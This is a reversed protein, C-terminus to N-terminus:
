VFRSRRGQSGSGLPHAEIRGHYGLRGASRGLRWPPDQWVIGGWQDKAAYDLRLCTKGKHPTEACSEDLKIAKTNGMWGTPVFPPKAAGAEDYVILPPKAKRGLAVPKPGKVFLPVNAVAAGGHNDRIYAFLRYGGGSSPMTLTAHNANSESIADVFEPPAAEKDGGSSYTGVESRLVWRVSIPDAEPDSTKLSVHVVAGPAVSDTGDVVLGAIVPCHNAVPRGLWLEAMTDAAALRSGDSLLMGFWTATAEQKTGWLFAYSGLCQSKAALSTEYGTQYALAKATSTQEPVVGWGNKKSEWIGAPGFETIIFPKTGGAEHYRKPVSPVGAYSNIGVIDIASCLKHLNRVKNGGIEAVVTMTPHDPDLEKAMTALGNITSWIAANAGEPGEMENGLGWLLVAPHNKYKLIVARVEDMQKAVQDVNAYDFGHREHGLWIGVAVTLGLKQAEDLTAELGEVGWTRVSNGGSAALLALSGNGGVGKIAYPRGDRILQYGDKGEVLRVPVAKGVAEGVIMLPILVLWCLHRNM